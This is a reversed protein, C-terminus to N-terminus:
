GRPGGRPDGHPVADVAAGAGLSRAAVPGLGPIDLERLPELAVDREVLAATALDLLVGGPEAGAQLRSALNVVSGIMTFDRYGAGGWDGVTCYGSAIGARMQLDVPEGRTRWRRRLDDILVPVAECFRVAGGATARRDPGGDLGFAVLVGDGLVKTVEGGQRLALECVSALYEDLLNALTEADIRAALSTFGVLDVFAVTLWRRDRQAGRGDFADAGDVAAAQIRARLTPALYPEMRVTMSELRRARGQASRERAHLRQAQRFSAQALAVVFALALLAAAADALPASALTLVPAALVGASLGIGVFPIAACLLHWGAQATVGALLAVAAALAGVPPLSLWGFLLGCLVCELLHVRLARGTDAGASASRRRFWADVLPPWAICFAAGALLAPLPRPGGVLLLCVAAMAWFSLYRFPRARRQLNRLEM